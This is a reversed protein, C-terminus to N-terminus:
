PTQTKTEECSTVILGKVKFGIKAKRSQQLSELLCSEFKAGAFYAGAHGHFSVRYRKDNFSWEMREVRMEEQAAFLSPTVFLFAFFLKIWKM